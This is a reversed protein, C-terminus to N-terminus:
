IFVKIQVLGHMVKITQIVLLVIGEDAGQAWKVVRYNGSDAIYISGEDDVYIDTMGENVGNM